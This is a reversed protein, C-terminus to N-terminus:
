LQNFLAIAVVKIGQKTSIQTMLKKKIVQPVEIQLLNNFNNSLSSDIYGSFQKAGM